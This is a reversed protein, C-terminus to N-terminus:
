RPLGEFRWPSLDSITGEAYRVSAVEGPLGRVWFMYIRDDIMWVTPFQGRSDAYEADPLFGNFDDNWGNWTANGSSYTLGGVGQFPTLSGDIRRMSDANARGEEWAAFSYRSSAHGNVFNTPQLPTMTTPDIWDTGDNESLRTPTSMAADGGSDAWRLASIWIEANRSPVYTFGLFFDGEDNAWASPDRTTPDTGLPAFPPAAADFVSRPAIVYLISTPRTADSFSPVSKWALLVVPEAANPNPGSVALTPFESHDPDSVETARAGDWDGSSPSDLYWVTSATPEGDSDVARSQFALHAVRGADVVVVPNTLDTHDEPMTIAVTSRVVAGGFYGARTGSVEMAIEFIDIGDRRSNVQAVVMRPFSVATKNSGGFEPVARDMLIGGGWAIAPFAGGSTDLATRIWSRSAAEWFAYFTTGRATRDTFVCYPVAGPEPLFGETIGAPVVVGWRGGNLCFTLDSVEATSSYVEDLSPTATDWHVRISGSGGTTNALDSLPGSGLRTFIPPM